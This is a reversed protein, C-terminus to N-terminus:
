GARYYGWAKLAHYDLPQSDGFIEQPICTYIRLVPLNASSNVLCAKSKSFNATPSYMFVEDGDLSFGMVLSM